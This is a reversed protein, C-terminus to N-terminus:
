HNLIDIRGWWLVKVSIAARPWLILRVMLHDFIMALLSTQSPTKGTWPKTEQTKHCILRQINNLALDM